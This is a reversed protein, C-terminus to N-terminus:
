VLEGKLIGAIRTLVREVLTVVLKSRYDATAHMDHQPEVSAGAVTASKLISLSDLDCGELVREAEILRVPGGGVGCTTLRAVSIRNQKLTLAGAVGVIAFDGRRRSVEEFAFRQDAGAIPIEIEVLIEGPELATEFYGCFFETAAIRRIKSKSQVVITANLTVMVAPYEAAPDAHALSGGITGRTRIPLHSLMLTAETLLPANKLVLISTEIDRQRTMAGIHLARGGVRIYELEAIRNLDLLMPFHSLRFNLAPVLSQGGALVKAGNSNAELFALADALKTPAFHSFAAPKV